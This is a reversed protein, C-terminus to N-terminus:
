YRHTRGTQRCNRHQQPLKRLHRPRHRRPQVICTDMVKVPPLLRMAALHTHSQCAPDLIFVPQRGPPLQQLGEAHRHLRRAPPMVRLPREPPRRFPSIRIQQSRAPQCLCAASSGRPGRDSRCQRVAHDGAVASPAPFHAAAPSESGRAAINGTIHRGNHIVHHESQTFLNCM